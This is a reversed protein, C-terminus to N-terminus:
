GEQTEACLNQLVGLLEEVRNSVCRLTLSLTRLALFIPPVDPLRLVRRKVSYFCEVCRLKIVGLYLDFEGLSDDLHDLCLNLFQISLNSLLAFLYLPLFGRLLPLTIFLSDPFSRRLEEPLLFNKPFRFFLAHVEHLAVGKELREIALLLLLDEAKTSSCGMPLHYGALISCYADYSILVTDM